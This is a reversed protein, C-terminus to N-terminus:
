RRPPSCRRRRTRSPSRTSAAPDARAAPQRGGAAARRASGESRRQESLVHPHDRRRVRAAQGAHGPHDHHDEASTVRYFTRTSSTVAQLAEELSSNRLDISLTSDRFQPDFVISLDAFHGLATFIDRASANRFVLSDALKMKPLESGPLPQENAQDILTELRTKGERTVAVKARLAARTQRLSTTSRPTPRSEARRRGPARDARRRAQRHRRPPTGQRFSGALRPDERAPPRDARRRREPRQKAASSYEIVARDYDLQREAQRAARLPGAASVCGALLIAVCAAAALAAPLERLM